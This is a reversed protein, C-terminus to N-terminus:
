DPSLAALALQMALQMDGEVQILGSMFAEHAQIEGARLKRYGDPDVTITTTPQEPVPDSGFHTLLTFGADGSLTFQLSGGVGTLNDIRARTLKMEGALGSLGGLMGLASDGAEAVLREYSASDQILTLFPAQEGADSSVMRGDLINLFWTGGGEGQVDIRITATVARMGDLVQRAYEAKSDTGAAAQEQEDLLRNFQAPVQEAYYQQPTPITV